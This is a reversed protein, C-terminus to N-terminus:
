KRRRIYPDDLGPISIFNPLKKIREIWSLVAPYPHLDIDGMPALAVYVFVSIDAVTPRNLVLWDRDHLRDQLISLSKHGRIAGEELMNKLREESWNQKSGLGNGPGSYSLIARNTFVGYQVWSNSFALWDIIQTQEYLDGSWYTSPGPSQGDNGHAGALWVLISSSDSFVKKGGLVVDHVVLCPVEGRPNIALYEPSHQQDALLDLEEIKLDLGLLAALLRVKYSNGSEPFSYLTGQSM